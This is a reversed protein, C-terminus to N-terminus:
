QEYHKKRKSDVKKYKELLSKVNHMPIFTQLTGALDGSGTEIVTLPITVFLLHNYNEAMNVAIVTARVAEQDFSEIGYYLECGNNLCYAIWKGLPVEFQKRKYGYLVQEVKLNLDAKCSPSIIMNAVSELPHSVDAVLVLSDNQRQYYLDSSFLENMYTSGRRMLYNKQATPSLMEENVEEDYGTQVYRIDDEVHEEAEQKNEGSIMEHTAPFAVSLVVKEGSMWLAVYRKQEYGFTFADGPHLTAVTALSGKTFSFRDERMMRERPRDQQPHDLQLFYRELFDLVPSHAAAKFDDSFLNYGVSQVMDHLVCIKVERGNVDFLFSGDPLSDVNLRLEGVLRKLEDSRFGSAAFLPQWLLLVLATLQM